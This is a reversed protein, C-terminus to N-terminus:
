KKTNINEGALRYYEEPTGIDLFTGKIPYTFSACNQIIYNIFYGLSDRAKGTAEAMYNEILKLDYRNFIYLALSVNNSKLNEIGPKEDLSLIRNNKDINLIGFNKAIFEKDKNPYKKSVVLNVDDGWDAKLQEFYYYLDMLDFEFYNDSAMVLIDGFYHEPIHQNAIQIAANAGKANEPSNSGDSYISVQKKPQYFFMAETIQKKYKDNVVIIIEDVNPMKEIKEMLHFLIPKEEGNVTIPLMTKAIEGDNTVSRLRSAYGGALIVAKM